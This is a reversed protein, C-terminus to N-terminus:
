RIMLNTVLRSFKAADPVPSGEAVLASGYMLEAYDVVEGEKMAKLKAMLPHSPNIELIRKEEKVDQGMAKM